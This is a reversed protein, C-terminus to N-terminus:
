VKNLAFTMSRLCSACVLIYVYVTPIVHNPITFFAAVLWVNVLLTITLGAFRLTREAYITEIHPPYLRRWTLVNGVLLLTGAFIFPVAAWRGWADVHRLAYSSRLGSPDHLIDGAVSLMYCLLGFESAPCVAAYRRRGLFEAAITRWSEVLGALTVM